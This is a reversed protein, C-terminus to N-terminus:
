LVSVVSKIEKFRESFCLYKNVFKYLFLWCYIFGKNLVYLKIVFEVLM